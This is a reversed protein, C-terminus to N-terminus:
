GIEVGFPFRTLGHHCVRHKLAAVPHQGAVVSAVDRILWWEEV